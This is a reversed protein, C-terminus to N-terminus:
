LFMLCTFFHFHSVLMKRYIDQSVSRLSISLPVTSIRKVIIAIVVSSLDGATGPNFGLDEKLVNSRITQVSLLFLVFTPILGFMRCNVLHYLM